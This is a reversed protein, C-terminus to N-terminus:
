SLGGPVESPSVSLISLSTSFIIIFISIYKGDIKNYNLFDYNIDTSQTHVEKLPQLRMDIYKNKTHITETLKAQFNRIDLGPKIQLYSPGLLVGYNGSYGHAINEPFPLLGEIQIHSTKPLDAIVNCVSVYLFATDGSHGCACHAVVQAM